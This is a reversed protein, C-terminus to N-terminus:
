GSLRYRKLAEYQAGTPHLRSEYLVAEPFFLAPGMTLPLPKEWLPQRRRALTIHPLFSNPPWLGVARHLTTVLAELRADPQMYVWFTYHHWGKSIPTLWFAQATRLPGELCQFLAEVESSPWRKLFLLTLHLYEPPTPRFNSSFPRPCQALLWEVAEDAPKLAVFLRM